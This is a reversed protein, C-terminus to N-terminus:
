NRWECKRPKAPPPRRLVQKGALSSSQLSVYKSNGTEVRSSKTKRHSRSPEISGVKMISEPNNRMERHKQIRKNMNQPVPNKLIESRKSRSVKRKNLETKSKTKNKNLRSRGKSAVVPNKESSLWDPSVNGIKMSSKTLVQNPRNRSARRPLSPKISRASSRGSKKSQIKKMFSDTPKMFNSNRIRQRKVSSLGKSQNSFSVRRRNGNQREPTAKQQNKKGKSMKVLTELMEPNNKLMELVNGTTIEVLKKIEIANTLKVQGTEEKMEKLNELDRMRNELMSQMIEKPINEQKRQTKELIENWKEPQEPKQRTEGKEGFRNKGNKPPSEKKKKQGNETDEGKKEWQNKHKRKSKWVNEKKRSNVRKNGEKGM